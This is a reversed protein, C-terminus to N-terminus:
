KRRENGWILVHLQPLIKYPYKFNDRIIINAIDKYKKILDRQSDQNVNNEIQFITTVVQKSAIDNVLHAYDLDEKGGVLVKVEDNCDLSSIYSLNSYKLKGDINIFPKKMDM